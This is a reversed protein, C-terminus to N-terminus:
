RARFMSNPALHFSSVFCMTFAQSVRPHPVHPDQGRLPPGRHRGDHHGAEGGHDSSRAGVPLSGLLLLLLPLLRLLIPASGGPGGSAAAPGSTGDEGAAAAASRSSVGPTLPGEEEQEESTEEDADPAKVMAALRAVVVSPVASRRKAALVRV